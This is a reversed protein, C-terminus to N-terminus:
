KRSVPFARVANLVAGIAAISDILMDFWLQSSVGFLAFLILLLKVGLVAAMGQLFVNKTLRASRIAGCLSDLRNSLLLLQADASCPYEGEGMVVGLDATTLCARDAESSAVYITSAKGSRECLEAIRGPKEDSRCNSYYKDIGCYRAISHTKESSDESLLVVDQCGLARLEEVADDIHDRPTEGLLISGAYRGAFSVHLELPNDEAEPLPVSHEFLFSRSGLLVPIGEIEVSLGEEYEVFNGIISYDVHEKYAEVISHALPTDANAAAHAAAKLLTEANLKQARVAELRYKGTTVTGNKDLVVVAPVAAKELSRVGKFLIGRSFAGTTGAHSCAYLGAFMGAPNLLIVVCLARHIASSVSCKGIVNLLVTIVAGLALAVPAFFRRYLEFWREVRSSEGGEARSQNWLREFLSNGAAGMAEAFIDGSILRSGAPIVDGEGLEQLTPAGFFAASEITGQGEAVLCDVAAVSGAYLHVMDGPRVEDRHVERETEDEAIVVISPRQDVAKKLIQESRSMAYDMVLSCVRYLLMLAAGDVELRVVFAALSSLLVLPEMTLAHHGSIEDVTKMVVDYAAALFCFLMFLMQVLTGARFFLGVVFFGLAAALRVFCYFEIGLITRSQDQKGEFEIPNVVSKRM